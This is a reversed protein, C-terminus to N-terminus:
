PIPLDLTAKATEGAKVEMVSSTGFPNGKIKADVAIKYQGPAIAIRTWVKSNSVSDALKGSASELVVDFRFGDTRDANTVTLEIAGSRSAEEKEKAAKEVQAKLTDLQSKLDKEMQAMNDRFETAWDKTEQLVMNQIGSIFDKARQILGAQQELTPSDSAAAVLAAWDMRFEHLLKTMSTATLVYRTWGSSFGFAKDLGILAAATGVCLSAIAGSDFTSPINVGSSRLIQVVIPALGALATLVLADLQIARSLTAKWRKSRWYWDIAKQGEEEVAKRLDRLSQVPEAANWMIDAADRPRVNQDDVTPM